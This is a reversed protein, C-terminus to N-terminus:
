PIRLNRPPTPSFSVFDNPLSYVRVWDVQLASTGKSVFPEGSLPQQLAYNIIPRSSIRPEWEPSSRTTVQVQSTATQSTM